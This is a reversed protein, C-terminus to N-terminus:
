LAKLRDVEGALGAWIVRPRSLNPFTGLDKLELALPTVGAAAAAVAAQLGPLKDAGVEGYFQLTLHMGEPRVWRVRGRPLAASLAGMVEALQRRVPAPLDLATFLRLTTM